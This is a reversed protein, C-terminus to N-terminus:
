FAKVLVLACQCGLGCDARQLALYKGTLLDTVVFIRTSGRPPQKRADSESVLIQLRQEPDPETGIWWRITKPAEVTEEPWNQGSRDIAM